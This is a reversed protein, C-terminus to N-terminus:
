LAQAMADEPHPEFDTYIIHEQHDLQNPLMSQLQLCSDEFFNFMIDNLRNQLVPYSYHKSALRYNTDVMAKKQESSKLIKKVNQVTNETIFGDMTVIDFGKPEIDKIFTHYRNILIPKKHYIAELFPNGFGECSCPYTILDAGAYLDKLSFINHDSDINKEKDSNKAEVLLIDVGQDKAYETLWESYEIDEEKPRHTIVLKCPLGNLGKVLEIAHEVGKKKVLRTPQLILIEDPDMGLSKKLADQPLMDQHHTNKFDLVNPIVVSSIGTRHALEEQVVSNVVVHRINPLNPPFSMRLYDNVANISYDTKEWFFNHHHAITPIQLEAVIETFALGLPLNEPNSLINEAILIDINFKKIFDYLKAKLFERQIHILESVYPKRKKQGFVQQKIWLNLAHKTDAEPVWFVNEAKQEFNGAFWFIKHGSKQFIDAWKVSEISVKNDGAFRTSIFGINKEM